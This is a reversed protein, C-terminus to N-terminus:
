IVKKLFAFVNDFVLKESQNADVVFYRDRHANIRQEYRSQIDGLFEMSDDDIAQPISDRLQLRAESVGLAVDLYITVDPVLITKFISQVSDIYEPSVGMAGQYAWSSDSHRDTILIADERKSLVKQTFIVNEMRAAELLLHTVRPDLTQSKLLNRISGGVTTGGPEYLSYVFESHKRLELLLKEVLATKGSGDIGEIAIFRVKKGSFAEPTPNSLVLKSM